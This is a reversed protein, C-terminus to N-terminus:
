RSRYTAEYPVEYNVSTFSENSAFSESEMANFEGRAKGTKKKNKAEGNGNRQGKPLEVWHSKTALQKICSSISAPSEGKAMRAQCESSIAALDLARGGRKKLLQWAENLRPDPAPAAAAADAADAALAGAGAGTEDLKFENSSNLQILEVSVCSPLQVTACSPVSGDRIVTAAGDHIVTGIGRLHDLKSFNPKYRNTRHNSGSVVAMFDKKQLLAVSREVTKEARLTDAALRKLSPWAAGEHTNYRALIAAFVAIAAAPLGPDTAAALLLRHRALLDDKQKM